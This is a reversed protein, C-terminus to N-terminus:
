SDTVSDVAIRAVIGQITEMDYSALFGRLHEALHSGDGGLRELEGLCGRLATASHLEAARSIRAALHGPLAIHAVDRAIVSALPAQVLEHVFEVDLLGAVCAYIQELRFPKAVFEDCGGALCRERERDLVSASTAVVRVRAGGVESAIQRAAEIGDMDPLRMDMFVIDPQFERVTEVAQRGSEAIVTHCGAM